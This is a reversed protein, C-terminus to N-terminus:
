LKELLQGIAQDIFDSLVREEEPLFPTLVYHGVESKEAPRGIGFRLRWFNEGIMGMISRIGNHGRAGGGFCFTITGFKKELEDHIVLIEEPKVGKKQLWPIVQGSNNMFTQPKIIYIKKDITNLPCQCWEMLDNSQWAGELRQVLVDVIRFGISHRTKYYANGPNGLGIIARIIKSDQASQM